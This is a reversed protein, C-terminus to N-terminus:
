NTGQSSLSEALATAVLSDDNTGKYADLLYAFFPALGPIEEMLIAPENLAVQFTGDSLLGFQYAAEADFWSNMMMRAMSLAQAQEPPTLDGDGAQLKAYIESHEMVISNVQIFQNRRANEATYRGIRNAQNLEVALFVIGVIVGLNALLTLTQGLEIKKM